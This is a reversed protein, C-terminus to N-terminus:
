AWRGLRPSHHLQGALRVILAEEIIQEDQWTLDSIVVKDSLRILVQVIEDEEAWVSIDEPDEGFEHAVWKSVERITEDM